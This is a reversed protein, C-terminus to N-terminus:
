LEDGKLHQNLEKLEKDALDEEDFSPGMSFNSQYYDKMFQAKIEEESVKNTIEKMDSVSETPLVMKTITVQNEPANSLYNEVEPYPLKFDSEEGAELLLDDLILYM